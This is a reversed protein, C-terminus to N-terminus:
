RNEARKEARSQGLKIGLHVGAVATPSTGYAQVGAHAGIEWKRPLTIDLLLGADFGTSAEEGLLYGAHAYVGPEIGALVRARGGIRAVAAVTECSWVSLGVEPIIDLIALNIQEGLRVGGGVGLNRADDEMRAVTGTGELSLVPRADAVQALFMMMLM